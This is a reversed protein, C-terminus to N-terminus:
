KGMFSLIGMGEPRPTAGAPANWSQIGKGPITRVVNVAWIKGPSVPEDTLEKLPIAIEATWGTEEAKTAVFWKPNWSKDGWCDDAVAGRQDVQLQYYTQYDRDLDIMISVRDFDKLNMDYGRQDLTPQKMGAPHRCVVAVYLFEDDYSFATKTGAAIAQQSEASTLKKERLADQISEHCGFESGVTGATTSMYLPFSEQWCADDLKGDLHPRQQSPKCAGVNKPASAVDKRNLLWTELLVCERWPDAGKAATSGALPTNTTALYHAIWKQAEDAKGLQRRAAAFCLNMPVDRVFLPGHAALQSEMELAGAYWKRANTLPDDINPRYSAQVVESTDPVTINKKEKPLLVRPDEQKKPRFTSDTLEVFQGLKQRQRAESSSSFRALWRASDLTLPHGPYQHILSLHTERAMGWQGSQAFSSALSYLAKGADDAPLEKISQQIQALAQEPKALKGAEGRVMAEIIRKKEFAKKISDRKTLDAETVAPMERRAAGGAALPIGSFFMTTDASDKMRTAVLRYGRLTPSSPAETWLRYANFSYDKASTGLRALPTNMDVKVGTPEPKDLQVFLKRGSWGELGLTTLQEPFINPNASDEFAKRLVEQIMRETPDLKGSDSVIVEPKWIRIALVLQRLMATSGKEGHREAWSDMLLTPDIDSQFGAIPFHWLMEGSTGGTMRMSSMLRMSATASKPDAAKMAAAVREADTDYRRSTTAPDDCTVSLSASLYGEDGSITAITDLPIRQANANVFLAAARLGGQRQVSWTKGGDTTALIMGMEGAAFGTKEDVFCVSHLPLTQGTKFMEWTLGHDNSHFVISGPRGVAWIHSGHVAVANFDIASRIEQPLKLDPFGWRVGATDQSIMILGGQGVAVAREGNLKLSNVNRGGLSDVDAIGLASERVPALRNWAGALVGTDADSFDGALWTPNRTGPVPKWTRGGDITNFLGSPLGDSGDGAAVGNQESFFKVLNLGPLANHSITSWKLGGDSTMLVVGSSGGEPLEIRGVAWGSYPTLFHVARLSARTGSAQREWLKGADITHWIVGDDGVAWGENADVFQMARIAADPFNPLSAANSVSAVAACILCALFGLSRMSSGRYVLASSYKL